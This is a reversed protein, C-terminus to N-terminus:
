PLNLVQGIKLYAPDALENVALIADMTVDFNRAIRYISDGSQVTYTNPREEPATSTVQEPAPPANDTPVEEALRLLQGVSLRNPDSLDNATVLQAMSVGTQQAIGSLTDGPQVTYTGDRSEVIPEVRPNAPEPAPTVAVDAVSKGILERTLSLYFDGYAVSPEIHTGELWENFSTIMIMDPNTATAASWTERFFAGGDRARAFADARPLKLDNYGPMTTAVWLKNTGLRDEVQKIRPPWKNLEARPNPSWAISYLHHGDFVDQFSLDIGEAIWYTTRNPDVAARIEAWEAVSFRQQRWFFIVPKGHLRLYAPHHIHTAMLTALASQVASRDPFFPGSTEFDVAAQFQYRAATDLLIRFNTETQNAEVRPGYWSQVFADIGAGKAQVVHREITAPDASRYQTAPIDAPQGSTWTTEDFWAYYFALVPVNTQAHATLPAQSSFSLGLLLLTLALYVLPAYFRLINCPLLWNGRLFCWKSNRFISKGALFYITTNRIKM